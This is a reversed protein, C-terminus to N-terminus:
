AEQQHVAKRLDDIRQQRTRHRSAARPRQQQPDRPGLHRRITLATIGLQEAIQRDSVGQQRLRVAHQQDWPKDKKKQGPKPRPFGAAEIADSWSAYPANKGYVAGMSPHHEGGSRVWDHAGPPVGDHEEAWRQIAAIVRQKTWYKSQQRLERACSQCHISGLWTPQGCRACSGRRRQKYARSSARQKELVTPSTWRLVTSKSVGVKQVIENPGHGQEHLDLVLQKLRPSYARM